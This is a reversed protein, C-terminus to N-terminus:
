YGSWIAFVMVVAALVMCIGFLPLIFRFWKGFPIRAVALMAILLGNTPIIMNSFGDGYVYALVATQRSIDLLDALPTMLPMSVLAQGSASPIFFNLFSQFVLMGITAFTQPLNSLTNSTHFLITDMIQSEMMVISIGRAVGIVLAPMIMIELGRTLVEMSHDGTMGSILIVVIAIGLFGGSMEILGWGMFQIATLIGGYGVVLTILIWIHKKTLKIKTFDEDGKQSLSIDPMWSKRKKNKVQNGYRMLFAFGIGIALCFVIFRLLMGSGIPLEAIQQAIQVNYPNTTATSWGISLPIAVLGFGFMPDYGKQRALLMIIPILPILEMIIGMFASGTSIAVYVMFFLLTTSNKFKIILWALTAHITQTEIILNFVAGIIFVFFVLSASHTLGKPIATLLGMLSVPSAKGEKADDLILGRVSYHKPIEQYTGAKVVTQEIKHYVKTEREFAGSPIIYSLVSCFLIIFFMFIFIQPIRIKSLNM